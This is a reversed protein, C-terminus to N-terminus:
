PTYKNRSIAPLFSTIYPKTLVLKMESYQFFMANTTIYGSYVANVFYWCSLTLKLAQLGGWGVGAMGVGGRGVGVWGQCSWGWGM